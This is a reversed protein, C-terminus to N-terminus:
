TFARTPEAALASLLAFEKQSLAVPAGRLRVERSAPDIALDGVRLRGGARRERARRLV